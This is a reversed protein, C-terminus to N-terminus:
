ALITYIKIRTHEQVLSQKMVSNTNVLTKIFETIKKPIDTNHTSSLSYRLYSFSNVRDLLKNNLCLKSPVLDKQFCIMMSM